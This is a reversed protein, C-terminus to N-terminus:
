GRRGATNFRDLTVAVPKFGYWLMKMYYYHQIGGIVMGTLLGLYSKM